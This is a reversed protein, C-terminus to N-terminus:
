LIKRLYKYKAYTEFCSVLEQFSEGDNDDESIVKYSWEDLGGGNRRQNNDFISFLQFLLFMSRYHKKQSFRYFLHTIVCSLYIDEGILFLIEVLFSFSM